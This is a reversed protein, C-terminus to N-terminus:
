QSDQFRPGRKLYVFQSHLQFVRLSGDQDVTLRGLGIGLQFVSRSVRELKNVFAAGRPPLGAFKVAVAKEICFRVLSM